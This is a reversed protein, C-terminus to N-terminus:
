VPKEVIVIINKSFLGLKKDRSGKINIVSFGHSELTNKLEKKSFLYCYRLFTKENTKWPVSVEKKELLFRPQDKNWVTIMAKGGPKLIRRLEDLCKVISQKPICHLVTAMIASDFSNDKLPLFSADAKFLNAEIGLQKSRDRAFGLMKESFDIGFIQLGAKSFNRGAGCGIDILNGDLSEIFKMVEPDKRRAFHRFPMAISDWVQRQDHANSKM